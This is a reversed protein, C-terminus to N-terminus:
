VPGRFPPVSEGYRRILGPLAVAEVARPFFQRPNSLLRILWGLYLRDAWNPIAVQYGTVFGLAGGICHIALRDKRGPLDTPSACQVRLYFGLKEQVGGSLAIVVHAARGAQVQDLLVRDEVHGGYMPAVYVEDATTSFGHTQLWGLIQTKASENPAVWLVSKDQRLEDRGLLENLYALGSIRRLRKGRLIRWLLVMFGSDPLVLDAHLMADRYIEDRQLRRFCTGSPAVILGGHNFALDVAEATTGQFFDLGLIRVRETTARIASGPSHSCLRPVLLLIV